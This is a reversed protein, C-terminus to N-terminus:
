SKKGGSLLLVIKDPNLVQDRQQNITAAPLPATALDLYELCIKDPHDGETGLSGSGDIVRSCCRNLHLLRPNIQRRCKDGFQFHTKRCRNGSSIMLRAFYCSEHRGGSDFGLVARMCILKYNCLTSSVKRSNRPWVPKYYKLQWLIGSWGELRHMKEFVHTYFGIDWGVQSRKQDGYVEIPRFGENTFLANIQSDQLPYM